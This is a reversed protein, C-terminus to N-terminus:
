PLITSVTVLIHAPPRLSQTKKKMALALYKRQYSKVNFHLTNESM